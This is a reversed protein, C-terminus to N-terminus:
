ENIHDSNVQETVYQNGGNLEFTHRSNLTEISSGINRYPVQIEEESRLGDNKCQNILNKIDITSM